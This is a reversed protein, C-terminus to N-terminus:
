VAKSVRQYLQKEEEIRRGRQRARLKKLTTINTAEKLGLEKRMQWYTLKAMRLEWEYILFNSTRWIDTMPLRYMPFALDPRSANFHLKFVTKVNFNMRAAIRDIGVFQEDRWPRQQSKKM